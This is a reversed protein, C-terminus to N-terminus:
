EPSGVRVVSLSLWVLQHQSSSTKPSWDGAPTGNRAAARDGSTLLLEYRVSFQESGPGELWFRVGRLGKPFTLRDRADGIGSSIAQMIPGGGDSSGTDTMYFVERKLILGAPLHQLNVLLSQTIGDYGEGVKDNQKGVLPRGGKNLELTVTVAPTLITTPGAAQTQAVETFPELIREDAEPGIRRCEVSFFGTDFRDLDTWMWQSKEWPRGQDRVFGPTVTGSSPDKYAPGWQQYVPYWGQGVQYRGTEATSGLDREHGCPVAGDAHYYGWGPWPTVRENVRWYFGPLQPKPGCAIRAYSSYMQQYADCSLSGWTPDV